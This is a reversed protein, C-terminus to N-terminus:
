RWSHGCEGCDEVLLLVNKFARTQAMAMIMNEPKMLKKEKNIFAFDEKTDCCGEADSFFTNGKENPQSSVRVRYIRRMTGDADVERRSNLIEEKLGFMTKIKRWGTKNVYTKNKIRSIDSDSLVDSKIKEFSKFMVKAESIEMAPRLVLSKNENEM